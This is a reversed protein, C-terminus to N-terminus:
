RSRIKSLSFIDLKQTAESNLLVVIQVVKINGHPYLCNTIM